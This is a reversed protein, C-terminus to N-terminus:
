LLGLKTGEEYARIINEIGERVVQSVSFCAYYEKADPYRFFGDTTFFLNKSKSKINIYLHDANHYNFVQKGNWSYGHKFLYQQIVCM